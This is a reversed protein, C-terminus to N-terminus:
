STHSLSKRPQPPSVQALLEELSTLGELVKLMGDDFLTPLGLADAHQRCGRASALGKEQVIEEFDRMWRIEYIGVRGRYGDRCRSCGVAERPTMRAPARRCFRRLWDDSIESPRSCHPCLRRVLRQAIFVHCSAVLPGVAVGLDLLRTIGGLADSAHLTSFCTHGTLGAEIAIEATELDRTEGILLYDPDQRLLARLGRAFPMDDNVESQVANHLRYEIPNELTRISYASGDLQSLLAALTTSKGCGTPGVLFVLGQPLAMAEQMQAADAETFGLESFPLATADQDLLRVVVKEGHQSPMSSFRLKFARGGVTLRSGGDLPETRRGIDLQGCIKANALLEDKRANEFLHRTWLRGDIRVKVEVAHERPLFHVDSADDAAAETLIEEVLRRGSFETVPSPARELNRLRADIEARTAILCTLAPARPGTLELRQRTEQVVQPFPDAFMIRTENESWTLILVGRERCWALPLRTGAAADAQCLEARSVRAWGLYVALMEAWADAAVVGLKVLVPGLHAERERLRQLALHREGSALVGEPIGRARAAQKFWEGGLWDKMQFERTAMEKEGRIQPPVTLARLPQPALTPM